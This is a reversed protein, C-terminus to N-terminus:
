VAFGGPKDLARQLLENNAQALSNQKDVGDKVAKTAAIQQRALNETGTGAVSEQIKKSLAEIGVFAYKFKDEAELPAPTPPGLGPAAEAPGMWWPRGRQANPTNALAEADRMAQRFKELSADAQAQAAKIEASAAGTGIRAKATDAEADRKAKEAADEQRGLELAQDRMRDMQERMPAPMWFTGATNTIRTIASWFAQTITDWLDLFLNKVKVAVYAFTEVALDSIKQWSVSAQDQIVEWVLNLNEIATRVASLASTIAGPIAEFASKGSERISPFLNLLWEGLTAFAGRFVNVTSIV